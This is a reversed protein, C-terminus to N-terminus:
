GVLVDTDLCLKRNQLKLINYELLSLISDLKLLINNNFKTESGFNNSSFSANVLDFFTNLNTDFDIPIAKQMEKKVRDM